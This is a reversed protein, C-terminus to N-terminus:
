NTASSAREREEIKVILRELTQRDELIRAFADWKGQDVILSALPGCALLVQSCVMSLPKSSELLFIALTAANRGCIGDALEDLMSDNWTKEDGKPSLPLGSPDNQKVM